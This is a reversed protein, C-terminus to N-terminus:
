CYKHSGWCVTNLWSDEAQVVKGMYRHHCNIRASGEGQLLQKNVHARGVAFVVKMKGDRHDLDSGLMRYTSLMLQSSATQPSELGPEAM